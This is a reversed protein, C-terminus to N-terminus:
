FEEEIIAYLYDQSFPVDTFDEGDVGVFVITGYFDIGEVTCNRPFEDIRGMDNCIIAYDGLTVSEIYGEVISQLAELTNPIYDEHVGIEAPFKVYVKIEDTKKM